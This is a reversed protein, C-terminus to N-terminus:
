LIKLFAVEGERWTHAVIINALQINNDKLFIKELNKIFSEKGWSLSGPPSIGGGGRWQADAGFPTTVYRM